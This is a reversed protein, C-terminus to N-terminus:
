PRFREAGRRLRALVRDRGLVDLMHYLSPGASKGSVGAKSQTAVMLLSITIVLLSCAALSRRVM